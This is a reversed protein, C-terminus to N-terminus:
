VTRRQYSALTRWVGRLLGHVDTEFYDEQTGQDTRRTRLNLRDGRDDGTTTKYLEHVCQFIAASVIDGPVFAHGCTYNFVLNGHAKPWASPSGDSVRMVEGSSGGFVLEVDTAPTLASGGETVSDVSQIPQAALRVYPTGDGSHREAVVATTEIPYGVIETFRRSVAPIIQDTLRADFTNAVDDLEPFAQYIQALTVIQTSDGFVGVGPSVIDVIRFGNYTVSGTVDFIFHLTDTTPQPVNVTLDVGGDIRYYGNGLDAVPTTPTTWGSTKFTNDDWDLIWPGGARDAEEIQLTVTLGSILAGAWIRIEAPVATDNRAALM